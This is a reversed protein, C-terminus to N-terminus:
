PQWLRFLIFFFLPHSKIVKDTKQLSFPFPILSFHLTPVVVFHIINGGQPEDEYKKKVGSNEDPMGKTYQPDFAYCQTCSTNGKKPVEVTFIKRFIVKMKCFFIDKRHFIYSDSAFYCITITKQKCSIKYQLSYINKLFLSLRDM